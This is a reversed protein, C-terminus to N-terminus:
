TTIIIIIIIILLQQALNQVAKYYNCFKVHVITKISRLRAPPLPGDAPSPETRRHRFTNTLCSASSRCSLRNYYGCTCALRRRRRGAVAAATRCCYSSDDDDCGAALERPPPVEVCPRLPAHGAYECAATSGTQTVDVPTVYDRSSSSSSLWSIPLWPQTLQMMVHTPGDGVVPRTSVRRM